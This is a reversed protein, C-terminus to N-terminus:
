LSIFLRVRSRGFATSPSRGAKEAWTRQNFTPCGDLTRHGKSNMAGKAQGYPCTLPTSPLSPRELLSGPRQDFDYRAQYPSFHQALVLGAENQDLEFAQPAGM